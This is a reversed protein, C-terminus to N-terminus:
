RLRLARHAPHRELLSQRFPAPLASQTATTLWDTALAAAQAAAAEDGQARWARATYLASWPQMAGIAQLPPPPQGQRWALLATLPEAFLRLGADRCEHLVRGLDAAPWPSCPVLGSWLAWEAALPLDQQDLAEQPWDAARDTSLALQARLLLLRLRERQPLAEPENQDQLLAQGLDARGLALMLAASSRRAGRYRGLGALRTSCAEDLALAEGFRGAWRLTELLSRLIVLVDGPGVASALLVERVRGAEALALEVEGLRLRQLALSAGVVLGTAVDQQQSLLPQMRQLAPVAERPHGRLGLLLTASAAIALARRTDGAARLRAECASLQQQAEEFRGNDSADRALAFRCESEVRLDDLALAEALMAAAQAHLAAGDGRTFDLLARQMRLRLRHRHDHALRELETLCRAGLAPTGVEAMADACDFWLDFAAAADGHDLHWAAARGFFDFAEDPRAAHWALRAAAEWHPSARQAEGAAQWHGAVRAPEPPAPRSRGELWAAVRAHLVRAIPRPLQEVAVEAHVDHATGHRGFVGQRELWGWAEALELASRGTVSEALEVCFDGGAVAALQLLQRAPGPLQSLREAVLSKVHLPAAVHQPELPLGADTLQRLAELVYLPNGGIRQVLAEALPGPRAAKPVLDAVLASLDDATLPGLTLCTFHGSRQLAALRGESPAGGGSRSAVAFRLAAVSAFLPALLEVSAGDAFQWDDFVLAPAQPLTAATALLEALPVAPSRPLAPPTVPDSGGLLGRLAASTPWARVPPHQRELAELLRGVLALPVGADGPRARVLLAGTWGEVLSELLRSKGIGPEGVVLLPRGARWAARMAALVDDRGVVAPPRQLAAGATTPARLPEAPAEREVLRLLALTQSDPRVGVEDKLLRECADFALLAAARDGALYHLRIIRRHAEESLPDLALLEQAHSLADSWDRASEALAALEALSQRMRQRRRDRQQALWDAFPGGPLGQVGDLVGDADQLDHTTGPSLAVQDRGADFGDGLQHKLRFLRQRLSNRAADAPSDPWLLSALRARTSSGELAIWALLAADQPALPQQSGDPLQLQPTGSLLLHM